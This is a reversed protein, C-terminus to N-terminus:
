IYESSRRDSRDMRCIVILLYNTTHDFAVIRFGQDVLAAIGDNAPMNWAQKCAVQSISGPIPIRSDCGPHGSIVPGGQAGQPRRMLRRLDLRHHFAPRGPPRNCRPAPLRAPRAIDPKFLTFAAARSCRNVDANCNGNKLRGYGFVLYLLPLSM